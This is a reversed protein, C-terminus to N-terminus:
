CMGEIVQPLWKKRPFEALFRGKWPGLADLFFRANQWTSFVSPEIAYEFFM